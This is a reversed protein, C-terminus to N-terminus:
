HVCVFVCSGEILVYVSDLMGCRLCFIPQNKRVKTTKINKAHLLICLIARNIDHEMIRRSNLWRLLHVCFSLPPFNILSCPLVDIAGTFVLCPIM